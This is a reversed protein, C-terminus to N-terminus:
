GTATDCITWVTTASASVPLAINVPLETSLSMMVSEARRGTGNVAALSVGSKSM